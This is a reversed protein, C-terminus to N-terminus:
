KFHSNNFIENMCVIVQVACGRTFMKEIVSNFNNNKYKKTSSLILYILSNLQGCSYFYKYNKKQRGFKSSHELQEKGHM